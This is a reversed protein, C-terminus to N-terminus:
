WNRGPLFAMAEGVIGEYARTLFFAVPRPKSRPFIYFLLIFHWFVDFTLQSFFESMKKPPINDGFHWYEYLIQLVYASKYKHLVILIKQLGEYWSKLGRNFFIKHVTLQYDTNSFIWNVVKTWSFGSKRNVCSWSIKVTTLPRM